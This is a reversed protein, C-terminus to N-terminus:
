RSETLPIIVKEFRLDCTKESSETGGLRIIMGDDVQYEDAGTGQRCRTTKGESGIVFSGRMSGTDRFYCELINYVERTIIEGHNRSVCICRPDIRIDQPDPPNRGVKVSGEVALLVERTDRDPREVIVLVKWIYQENTDSM